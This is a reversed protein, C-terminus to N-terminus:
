ALLYCLQYAASIPNSVLRQDQSVQHGVSEERVLFVQLAERGQLELQAQLVM